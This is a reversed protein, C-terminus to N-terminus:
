SFHFLFTAYIIITEDWVTQLYFLPLYHKLRYSTLTLHKIFRKAWGYYKWRDAELPRCSPLDVFLVLGIPRIIIKHDPLIKRFKDVLSSFLSIQSYSRGATGDLGWSWLLLLSVLVGNLTIQPFIKNEHRPVTLLITERWHHNWDLYM